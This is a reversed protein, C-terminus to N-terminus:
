DLSRLGVIFHMYQVYRDGTAEDNGVVMQDRGGDLAVHQEETLLDSGIRALAEYRLDRYSGDHGASAMVEDMLADAHLGGCSEAIAERGGDLTAITTADLPGGVTLSVLADTDVNCSGDAVLHDRPQGPATIGDIVPDIGSWGVEVESSVCNLMVYGMPSPITTVSFAGGLEHQGYVRHSSSGRHTFDEGGEITGPVEVEQAMREYAGTNDFLSNVWQQDGRGYAPDYHYSIECVDGDPELAPLAPNSTGVSIVVAGEPTQGVMTAEFGEPTEFTLGFDSDVLVQDQAAAMSTAAAVFSLVAFAKM